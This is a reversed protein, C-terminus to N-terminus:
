IEFQTFKKRYNDYNDKDVEIEGYWIHDFIYILEQFNSKLHTKSLESLYDKNTKEPNWGILKKDSLKKLVSLFHYRVASRYDEKREFNEITQAFNIEHINEQLDQDAINFKKNKKSFFYNGEKSMLFKLVFYLVFGIILIAFFRLINEAYNNRKLPDVEGFISQLIRSLKKKLKEWISEQPKVTTYDFDPGKYKSQFKERFSKPYVVNDSVPNRELISDTPYFKSKYIEVSDIVTEEPPFEQSFGKFFMLIFLFFLFRIKM